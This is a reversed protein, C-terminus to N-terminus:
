NRANGGEAREEGLSQVFGGIRDPFTSDLNERRECTVLAVKLELNAFYEGALLDIDESNWKRMVEQEKTQNKMRKEEKAM